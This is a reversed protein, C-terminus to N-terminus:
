FDKQKKSLEDFKQKLIIDRSENQTITLGEEFTRKMNVDHYEKLEKESRENAQLLKKSKIRELYSRFEDPKNKSLWKEYYRPISCKAGDQLHVIGHNFIDTYFKELFRSGIARKSSKKSIPEYEHEGDNGHVLKKAAYRACYSASEMTVQGTETTGKGWLTDLTLSSYNKDGRDNSYKYTLDSPRYNFIIAHWHPRKKRDGYEGTVFYSIAIEDLVKKRTEKSLQRFLKRQLSQETNPYMQNLRESFIHNRLRKIFAQYHEYELKPTVTLDNYTLTIFSNEPHMLSEHYCRVAWQRSYELRCSLCKGCPLQFTAFEKSFNKPSWSITKGDALFGVTRPSTCRM